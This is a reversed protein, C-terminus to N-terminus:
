GRIKTYLTSVFFACAIQDGIFPLLPILDQEEKNTIKHLLIGFLFRM